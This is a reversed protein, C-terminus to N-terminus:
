PMASGDRVAVVLVTRDDSWGEVGIPGHSRVAQTLVTNCIGAASGSDAGAAAALVATPTRTGDELAETVGDTVFLCTDGAKLDVTEEQFTADHFLGLPPGGHGLRRPGARGLILGPPHGANSYTLQRTHTDIRAVIATVYPSGAWEEYLETSLRAVLPAPDSQERAHTRFASRLVGLAMAAPVGKGSVDAVLIFWVGPSREVFDYLDGGIKGAPVLAAAWEFGRATSPVAPLLRRQMSAAMSLQTEIVLEARERETLELRTARLYRWLYVAVGFATSLVVDSIWTLELESPHLTRIFAAEIGGAAIYVVLAAAIGEALARSWVSDSHDDSRDEPVQQTAM